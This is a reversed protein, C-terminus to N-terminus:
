TLLNLSAAKISLRGDLIDESSPHIQTESIQLWYLECNHWFRKSSACHYLLHYLTESEYSCFSCLDSTKFGIKCLKDNTYLIANLVKYQFAEVHSELAVDHPLKFTQKLQKSSLNLDKQLKTVVNPFKAKKSIQLRHYDKSKNKGVDFFNNNIQLYPHDITPQCTSDELFTTYFSTIWGM